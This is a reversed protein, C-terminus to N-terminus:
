FILNNKLLYNKSIEEEYIEIKGINILHMATHLFSFFFIFQGTRKHFYFHQDIPVYSSAGRSRLFTLSQRLMVIVIFVCDFNLCQGLLYTLM